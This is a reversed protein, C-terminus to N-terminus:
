LVINLLHGALVHVSQELKVCCLLLENLALLGPALVRMVVFLLHCVAAGLLASTATDFPGKHARNAVVRFAGRPPTDLLPM